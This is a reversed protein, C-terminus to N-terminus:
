SVIDLMDANSGKELVIGNQQHQQQEFVQNSIRLRDGPSASELQLMETSM